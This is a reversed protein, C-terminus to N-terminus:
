FLEYKSIKSMMDSLSLGDWHPDLMMSEFDDYEKEELFNNPKWEEEKLCKYVFWYEWIEFRFENWNFRVRWCFPSSPCEDYDYCLDDEATYDEEKKNRWDNLGM